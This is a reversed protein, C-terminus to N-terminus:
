DARSPPRETSRRSRRAHRELALRVLEDVLEPYSVGSAQWLMPYMSIPTFGPITNIENVLPGRGDPGEEWFIDVRAMGEARLVSFTRIALARVRESVGPDLDAPVVTKAAGDAYKDQYDYFAAAPVIEGVVSARPSANGLVGCELERATVGEEVVFLEDYAAADALAARIADADTARSVGISSGMNAPKVFVVPGLETHLDEALGPTALDAETVARWRAQPIGHADLVTKAMVKDMAVSSGLVGAGVYPLGALELLGQVTGDEGNPGHLIPLVVTPVDDDGPRVGLPREALTPLPDVDPGATAISGPLEAALGRGLLEAAQAALVWRGEKTIGIPVIDYRDPDVARLVHSASVCSVDHEASRGGFLVVLRIRPPLEPPM